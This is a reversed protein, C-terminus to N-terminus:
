DTWSTGPQHRKESQYPRDVDPAEPRHYRGSEQTNMRRGEADQLAGPVLKTM